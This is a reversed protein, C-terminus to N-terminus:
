RWPHAGYEIDYVVPGNWDIAFGAERIMATHEMDWTFVKPVAGWPCVDIVERRYVAFHGTVYSGDEGNNVREGDANRLYTVRRPCLVDQGEALAIDEGCALMHDDHTFILIDGSAEEAAEQRQHLADVASHYVSPSHIYTYRGSASTKWEGVVIVEHIFPDDLYRPIIINQLAYARMLHSQGSTSKTDVAGGACTNIILSIM